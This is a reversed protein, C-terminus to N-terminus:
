VGDFIGEHVRHALQGHRPGCRDGAVEVTDLLAQLRQRAALAAADDGVENATAMAAWELEARAPPGLVPAAALLEDVWVRAENIHDGLFWFPWLVRFAHPLLAPDHALYWRM